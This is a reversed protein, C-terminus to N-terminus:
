ALIQISKILLVMVLLQAMPFRRWGNVYLRSIPDRHLKIWSTRLLYLPLAHSIPESTRYGSAVVSSSALTITSIAPKANAIHPRNQSSLFRTVSTTSM